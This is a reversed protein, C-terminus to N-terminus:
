EEDEEDEDKKEEEEGEEKEEDEDADDAMLGQTEVAEEGAEEDEFRKAFDDTM